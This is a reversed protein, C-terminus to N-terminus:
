TPITPIAPSTLRRLAERGRTVWEVVRPDSDAGYLAILKQLTQIAGPPDIDELAGGRLLLAKAVQARVAPNLSDRYRAFVLDSDDLIGSKRPPQIKSYIVIRNVYTVALEGSFKPDMRDGYRQIMSNVIPLASEWASSTKKLFVGLYNTNAWIINEIVSPNNSTSFERDIKSIIETAQDFYKDGLIQLAYVQSGYMESRNIENPFNNQSIEQTPTLLEDIKNLYNIAKNENNTLAHMTALGRFVAFSDTDTMATPDQALRREIEQFAEIYKPTSEHTQGFILLAKLKFIQISRDTEKSFKEQIEQNISGIEALKRPFVDRQYVLINLAARAAIRRQVINASNYNAEFLSRSLRLAEDNKGLKFLSGTKKLTADAQWREQVNAALTPVLTLADDAFVIARSATEQTEDALNVLASVVWVRVEPLPSTRYRQVLTELGGLGEKRQEPTGQLLDINMNHYALVALEQAKAGQTGQVRALARNYGDLAEPLRRSDIKTANTATNLLSASVILDILADPNQEYEAIVRNYDSNAAVWDPPTLQEFARARNFLAQARNYESEVTQPTRAPDALRDLLAQYAPDRPSLGKMAKAVDAITASPPLAPQTACSALALAFGCIVLTQRLRM